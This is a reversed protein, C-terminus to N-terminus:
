ALERLRDNEATLSRVRQEAETCQKRLETSGTELRVSQRRVSGDRKGLWGRWDSSGTAAFERWLEVDGNRVRRALDAVEGEDFRYIGRRDREPFLVAGELRRVTAVSRGLRRAVQSRRLM